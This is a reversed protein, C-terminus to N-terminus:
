WGLALAGSSSIALRQPKGPLIPMFETNAEQRRKHFVARAVDDDSLGHLDYLHRCGDIDPITELDFVFVNM